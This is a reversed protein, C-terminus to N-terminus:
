LVKRERRIGVRVDKGYPLSHMCESLNLPSESVYLFLRWCDRSFVSLVPCLRADGWVFGVSLYTYATVGLERMILFVCVSM